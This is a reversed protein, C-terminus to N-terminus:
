FTAPRGFKFGHRVGWSGPEYPVDVDVPDGAPRGQIMVSSFDWRDMFIEAAEKCSFMICLDKAFGPITKVVHVAGFMRLVCVCGKIQGPTHQPMAKTIHCVQTGLKDRAKIYALIQKERDNLETRIMERM